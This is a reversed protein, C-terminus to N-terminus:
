SIIRSTSCSLEQERGLKEDSDDGLNREKADALTQAVKDYTNDLASGVRQGAEEASHPMKDSIKETLTKNAEIEAQKQEESKTMENVKEKINGISENAKEKINGIANDIAPKIDHNCNNSSDKDNAM